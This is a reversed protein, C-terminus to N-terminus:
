PEQNNKELPEPESTAMFMAAGDGWGQTYIEYIKNLNRSQRSSDLLLFSIQSFVILKFYLFWSINRKREQSFSARKTWLSIGPRPNIVFFWNKTMPTQNETKFNNILAITEIQLFVTSEQFNGEM